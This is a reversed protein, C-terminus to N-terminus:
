GQKVTFLETLQKQKIAAIAWDEKSVKFWKTKFEVDIGQDIVNCEQLMIGAHFKDEASMAQQTEFAIQVILTNKPIRPQTPKNTPADSMHNPNCCYKNLCTTRIQKKAILENTHEAYILRNAQTMQQNGNKYAGILNGQPGKAGKWIWCEDPNGQEIKSNLRQTNWAWEGNSRDLIRTKGPSYGPIRGITMQM